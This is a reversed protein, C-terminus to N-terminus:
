SGPAASSGPARQDGTLGAQGPPSGPTGRARRSHSLDAIACSRDM